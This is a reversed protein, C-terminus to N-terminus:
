QASNTALERLRQPAESSGLQEAREYWLRAMAIDAAGDQLGLAALVSPDFTGALTLAAQVNGAEAARLLLLRAASLDGSKIFGDARRLMSALEDQDLQRTVIFDRTSRQQATAAERPPASTAQETPSTQRDPPPQMSTAGGFPTPTPREHPDAQEHVEPATLKAIPVTPQPVEPPAKTEVSSTGVASAAVAVSSRGGSTPIVTQSNNSAPSTPRALYRGLQPMGPVSVVIWAVLAALGLIGTARVALTWANRGPPADQPPEPVFKPELALRQRMEVVARDGSFAAGKPLEPLSTRDNPPASTGLPPQGRSRARPPAYRLVPDLDRDHHIGSNM